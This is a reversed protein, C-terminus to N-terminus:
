RDVDLNGAKSYTSPEYDHKCSGVMKGQRTESLDLKNESVNEGSNLYTINGMWRHRPTSCPRKRDFNRMGCM